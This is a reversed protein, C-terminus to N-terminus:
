FFLVGRDSPALFVTIFVLEYRACRKKKQAGDSHRFLRCSSITCPRSFSPCCLVGMPMVPLWQMYDARSTVITSNAQLTPHSMASTARPTVSERHSRCVAASGSVPMTVAGAVMSLLYFLSRFLFYLMEPKVFYLLFILLVVILTM